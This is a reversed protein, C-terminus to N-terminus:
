RGLIKDAGLRLLDRALDEGLNIGTALTETKKLRIMHKGDASAVLGTLTIQDNKIAAHVGIPSYCDGQLARTFAREIQIAFHAREQNLVELYSATNEDNARAEIFLAGQGVSPVLFDIDFYETIYSKKDLRILGAAALVIADYEGADLKKLRTDVNGRLDQIKLDPRHALLQARRRPSSTGIVAGKPLASWSAFNKAVLVDRPDERKSIAVCSLGQFEEVPVDKASHVAFDAKGSLLAQQLEKLFLGKGGVEALPRDQIKDGRTTLPLLEIQLDMHATELAEKVIHAQTLALASTRTALKLTKM